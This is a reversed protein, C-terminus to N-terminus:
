LDGTFSNACSNTHQVDNDIGNRRQDKKTPTDKEKRKTLHM